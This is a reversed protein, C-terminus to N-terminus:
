DANGSRKKGSCNWDFLQEVGFFRNSGLVLVPVFVVVLCIKLWVDAESFIIALSAAIAVLFSSSSLLRCTREKM